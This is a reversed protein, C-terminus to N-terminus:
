KTKLRDMEIKILDQTCQLFSTAAKNSRKKNGNNDTDEVTVDIPVQMDVGGVTRAFAVTVTGANLGQVLMPFTKEANYVAVVAGPTDSDLSRNILFPLSTANGSVFFASVPSSPTWDYTKPDIDNVVVKLLVGLNSKAALLNFSGDVRAFTGAKYTFDKVLTTFNLSCGTLVGNTFVPQADNSITGVRNALLQDVIPEKATATRDSSLLALAIGAMVVRNM